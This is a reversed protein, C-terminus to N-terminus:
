PEALVNLSIRPTRGIVPAKILINIFSMYSQAYFGCRERIIDSALLLTAQVQWSLPLSIVVTVVKEEKGVNYM